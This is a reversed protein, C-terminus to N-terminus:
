GSGLYEALADVLAGAEKITLTLGKGPLEKGDEKRWIRLDLKGPHGNWSVIRLRMASTDRENLTTITKIVAYPVLNNGM